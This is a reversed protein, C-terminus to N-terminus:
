DMASQQKAMIMNILCELVTTLAQVMDKGAKVHAQVPQQWNNLNPGAPDYDVVPSENRAHATSLTGAQADGDMLLLLEIVLPGIERNERLLCVVQKGLFKTKASLMAVITEVSKNKWLAGPSDVVQLRPASGRKLKRVGRTKKGSRGQEAQAKM